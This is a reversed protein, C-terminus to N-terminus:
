LHYEKKLLRIFESTFPTSATKDLSLLEPTTEKYHKPSFHKNLATLSMSSSYKSISQQLFDLLTLYSIEEGYINHYAERAIELGKEGYTKSIVHGMEHYAIGISVDTALFDDESLFSNTVSRDRLAALNFTIVTGNPNTIALDSRDLNDFGIVLKHNELKYEKRIESIADIQEKALEINGDFNRVNYIRLGKESAYKSLADYEDQTHKIPETPSLEKSGVAYEGLRPVDAEVYQVACACRPHLPPYLGSEDYEVRNGSFFLEDMGIQRGDLASCEPCVRDDGSTCWRKEVKGILFDAQAQRIGEDAGFNYAFAMETQAITIARQRHLREAYKTAQTLARQRIVQPKTRPHDKTLSQVMKDYYREVAATQQRYLGITPRILRALEDVTYKQRIKEELLLSIADKQTQTSVTVLAAGRSRIWRVVGPTQMNLEFAPLISEMVPQSVSGAIMASGWIKPMQTKVLMSYDQQWLRATVEDLYGQRVLERLEQYTIAKQQNQWFGHLIRIPEWSKEDLYTRLRDLIAKADKTRAAKRVRGAPMIKWGM